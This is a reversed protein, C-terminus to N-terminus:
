KNVYDIVVRGDIKAHKMEDFVANVDELPRTHFTPKIKGRAYFELAEDMDQRTGVISGRITLGKLVIDFIPAPFDGPPLGNFVITGGRRTMGIAQGFAAPHVATVLVGHAGGTAAQIAEAPDQAFANVTVEAGHSRALALKEEAVDVAAVRMGMAVAYQVAIHGLGGIGSIVVWQGPKVETQKLGKYVTVGACLVPAIEYPDSGEPIHAAFKADVLMYEGFSGNLSYGGNQQSECLTEWGTGCYECSGCASALWANGVLDGVKVETVGEGIKVVNGVGEHGPVLPLIPKIPWDGEAAHLDTHCVGSAIVKVLAQGPGPEPIETTGVTLEDGFNEVIAARMTSM